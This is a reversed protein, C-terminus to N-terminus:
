TNEIKTITSAAPKGLQDGSKLQLHSPDPKGQYFNPSNGSLLGFPALQAQSLVQGVPRAKAVPATAVYNRLLSSLNEIEAQRARCDSCHTLHREAEESDLVSRDSEAYFPLLVQVQHCNM